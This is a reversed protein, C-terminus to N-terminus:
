SRFGANSEAGKAIQECAMELEDVTMYSGAKRKIFAGSEANYFLRQYGGMARTQVVRVGYAILETRRSRETM